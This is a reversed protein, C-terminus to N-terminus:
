DFLGRQSKKKVPEAKRPAPPKVDAKFATKKPASGPILEPQAVPAPAIPVAGAPASIANPDAVPALGAAKLALASIDGQVGDATRILVGSLDDEEDKTKNL